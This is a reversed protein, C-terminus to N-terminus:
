SGVIVILLFTIDFYKKKQNQYKLSIGLYSYRANILYWIRNNQFPRLHGRNFYEKNFLRM